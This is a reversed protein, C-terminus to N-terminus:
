RHAQDDDAKRDFWDSDLERQEEGETQPQVRIMWGSQSRSRYTSIVTCPGLRKGPAETADWATPIVADGVSFPCPMTRIDRTTM